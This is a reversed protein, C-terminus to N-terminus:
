LPTFDGAAQKLRDAFGVIVPRYGGFSLFV